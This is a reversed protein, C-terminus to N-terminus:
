RSNVASMRDPYPAASHTCKPELRAQHSQLFFGKTLFASCISAASSHLKDGQQIPIEHSEPPRDRQAALPQLKHLPYHKGSHRCPDPMTRPLDPLPFSSALQLWLLNEPTFLTDTLNFILRGTASGLWLALSSSCEAGPQNVGLPTSYSPSHSSCPNTIEPMNKTRYCFQSPCLLFHRSPTLTSKPAAQLGNGM